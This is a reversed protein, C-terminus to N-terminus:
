SALLGSRYQQEIESVLKRHKYGADCMGGFLKIMKWTLRKSDIAYKFMKVLFMGVNIEYQPGWFSSVPKITGGLVIQGIQVFGSCTLDFCGTSRYSDRQVM